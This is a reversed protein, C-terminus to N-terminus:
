PTEEVNLDRRLRQMGRDVLGRVTGESKGTLRGVEAFSWGYGVVLVVALRQKEPLAGMAAPLRPEFEPQDAPDPTAFSVPIQKRRDRVSSRGVKFLYGVPSSMAAIRDSHEWAYAMAYAHADQGRQQGLAGVLAQKLPGSVEALFGDTTVSREDGSVSV